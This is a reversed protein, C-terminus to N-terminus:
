RILGHGVRYTVSTECHVGVWVGCPFILIWVGPVETLIVLMGHDVGYFQTAKM